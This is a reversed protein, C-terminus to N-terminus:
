LRRRTVRDTSGSTSSDRGNLIRHADGLLQPGSTGLRARLPSQGGVVKRLLPTQSHRRPHDRDRSRQPRSRPLAIRPRANGRRSEASLDANPVFRRRHASQFATRTAGSESHRAGRRREAQAAYPAVSQDTRRLPLAYAGDVSRRDRDTHSKRRAETRNPSLPLP